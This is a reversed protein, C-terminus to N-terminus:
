APDLGTLVTLEGRTQGAKEAAFYLDGGYLGDAPVIQFTQFEGNVGKRKLHKADRAPADDGDGVLYVRYECNAAVVYVPAADADLTDGYQVPQDTLEVTSFYNAM